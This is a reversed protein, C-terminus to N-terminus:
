YALQSEFAHVLANLKELLKRQRELVIGLFYDVAFITHRSKGINLRLHFPNPDIKGREITRILWMMLLLSNGLNLGWNGGFIVPVDEQKDSWHYM